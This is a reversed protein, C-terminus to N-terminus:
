ASTQQEEKRGRRLTLWILLALVLLAALFALGFLWLTRYLISERDMRVEMVGPTHDEAWAIPRGDLRDTLRQEWTLINGRSPDRPANTDVDRSNHFRIRSPLHLRFAVLENGQWGVNTLSGPKFSSAGLTDRYTILQGDDRLEFKEWSFPSAKPLQRIDPVRLRVGFYRRGHRTWQTVRVVTAYPSSYIKQVQDRIQDARTHTDGAIVLGRLAALAPLSSNVVLSASGDLSLTLDEEYEYEPGLLGHRGSCGAAAIALVSALLASRVSFRM